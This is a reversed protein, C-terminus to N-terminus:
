QEKGGYEDLLERIARLEEPSARRASLAQLVLTHASGRFARDILDGALQRQTRAESQAPAYVQPRRSEDRSLLGKGVMIQMFKLVTTYGVPGVKVRSLAEHVERVTSKGREWLVALIELEADTPRKYEGKDMRM